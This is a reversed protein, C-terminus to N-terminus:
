ELVREEGSALDCRWQQANAVPHFRLSGPPFQREIAGFRIRLAGDTTVGLVRGSNGAVDIMQHQFALWAEYSPLLASLSQSPQLWHQLGQWIGTLTISALEALSNVHSPEAQLAQFATLSIG